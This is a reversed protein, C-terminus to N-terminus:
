FRPQHLARLGEMQTPHQLVPHLCTEMEVPMTLLQTTASPQTGDRAERTVQSLALSSPLSLTGCLSLSLLSGLSRTM